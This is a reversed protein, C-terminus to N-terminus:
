AAKKMASKKSRGADKGVSAFDLAAGDVRQARKAMWTQDGVAFWIFLPGLFRVRKFREVAREVDIANSRVPTLVLHYGCYGDFADIEKRLLYAAKVGEVKAVMRLVPALAEDYLGHPAMPEDPSLASVAAEAFDHEAGEIRVSEMAAEAGSVDGRDVCWRYKASAAALGLSPELLAARDFYKDARPHGAGALLRGLALWAKANDEDWVVAEKYRAIAAEPTMLFQALAGRENAAEPELAAEAAEMDLAALRALGEQAREHEASWEDAVRDRWNQDFEDLLTEYLSGLLLTARQAGVAALRPEAGLRAIREVLPPAAEGAGAADREIEQLWAESQRWSRMAMFTKDMHKFPAVNPRACTQMRTRVKPWFTEGLYREALAARILADATTQADAAVAGAADADYARARAFPAGVAELAPAYWRAFARMGPSAIMREARAPDIFARWFARTRFLFGSLRGGAPGFRAFEGAIVAILQRTSLAQLLPLGIVLRSRYGGYLGYIPAQEISVAPADGIHVGEVAPGGVKERVADIAAFLDPAEERTVQEYATAQFKVRVSLAVAVAAGCAGITAGILRLTNTPDAIVVAIAVVLALGALAIPAAFGIVSWGTLLCRYSIPRARATEEWRRVREISVAHRASQRGTAM